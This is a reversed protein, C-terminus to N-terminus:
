AATFGGDLLYMGGTCYSSEDSALFLILNAVEENTGYRKMPIMQEIGARMEDASDPALQEHVDHMMRNDIAGPGIANIRIGSEGQELAATKVLGYVAHKSAVYPSFGPFGIVGSMSSLSIISGGGNEKM